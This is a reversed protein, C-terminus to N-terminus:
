LMLLRVIGVPALRHHDLDSSDLEASKRYCSPSARFLGAAMVVEALCPVSAEVTLPVVAAQFWLTRTCALRHSIASRRDSFRNFSDFNKVHCTAVLEQSERVEANVMRVLERLQTRHGGKWANRSVRVKGDNSQPGTSEGV